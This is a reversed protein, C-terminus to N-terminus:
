RDGRRLVQVIRVGVIWLVRILLSPSLSAGLVSWTTQIMVWRVMCGCMCGRGRYLSREWRHRLLVWRQPIRGRSASWNCALSHCETCDISSQNPCRRSRCGCCLARHGVYGGSNVRKCVRVRVIIHIIIIHTDTEVVWGFGCGSEGVSEGVGEGLGAGVGARACVCQVFM